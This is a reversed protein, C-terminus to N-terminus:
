SYELDYEGDLMDLMDGLRFTLYPDGIGTITNEGGLLNEDGLLNEGGLLTLIDGVVWLLLLIIIDDGGLWIRCNGWWIIEEGASYLTVYGEVQTIYCRDM